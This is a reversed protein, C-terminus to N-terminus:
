LGLLRRKAPNVLGGSAKLADLVARASKRSSVVEPRSALNELAVALGLKSAEKLVKEEIRIQAVDQGKGFKKAAPPPTGQQTGRGRKPPTEVVTQGVARARKKAVRDVEKQRAEAAEKALEVVKQVQQQAKEAREIEQFEQSAQWPRLRDLYELQLRTHEAEYSIREESRMDKWMEALKSSIERSGADKAEAQLAEMAKARQKTDQSFLGQASLPRQPILHRYKNRLFAVPDHAETYAQMEADYRQKDAAAKDEYVKRETEPLDKWRQGIVKAVDGLRSGAGKERLERGGM